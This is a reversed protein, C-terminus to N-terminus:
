DNREGRAKALLKVKRDREAILPENTIGTFKSLIENIRGIDRQLEAYMEPASAALYRNAMDEGLTSGCGNPTPSNLIAFGGCGVGNPHPYWEGKTFKAESM